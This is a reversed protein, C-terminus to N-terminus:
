EQGKGSKVRMLVFALLTALALFMSCMAIIATVQYKRLMMRIGSVLFSNPVRLLGLIYGRVERPYIAARSLRFITELGGDCIAALIFSFYVSNKNSFVVLINAVAFTYFLLGGFLASRPAFWQLVAGLIQAGNVAAVSSTSSMESRPLKEKNDIQHISQWMPSYLLYFVNYSVDILLMFVLERSGRVAEWVARISEGYSMKKRRGEGQRTDNMFVSIILASTFFMLASVCFAGSTGFRDTVRTSIPTSALTLFLRLVASNEQITVYSLEPADPTQLQTALWDEFVVRNSATSIGMVCSSMVFFWFGGIYRFTAHISLLFASLIIVKKHGLHDSVYGVAFGWISSVVNFSSMIVTITSPDIHSDLYHQYVYPGQFTLGLM